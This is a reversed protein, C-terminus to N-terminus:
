ASVHLFMFNSWEKVGYVFILEFNNLSRFTLSSMIFSRSSFMPLVSESMFQLLIKKLRDKLIFSIFVFIFLHFRSFNLLIQVAFFVIFLVFICGVSQSFINAFSTVLLPNSLWKLRTQSQGVGYFLLGSPEGMGPIRWALVISHIAMEKELPNTKM